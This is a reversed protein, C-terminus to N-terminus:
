GNKYWGLDKCKELVLNIEKITFCANDYSYSYSKSITKDNWFQIDLGKIEDRYLILETIEGNEPESFKHEVVKTYGIEYFKNDINM